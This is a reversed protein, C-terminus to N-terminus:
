RLGLNKLIDERVDVGNVIFVNNPIDIYYLEKGNDILRAMTLDFKMEYSMNDHESMEGLLGFEQSTGRMFLKSGINEVADENEYEVFNEYAKLEVARFPNAIKAFVDPYFSNLTITTEIAEIKGNSLKIEGISGLDSLEVKKNKISPPTISTARGFLDNNTGIYLCSDTFVRKNKSM